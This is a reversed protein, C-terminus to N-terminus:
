ALSGTPRGCGGVHLPWPRRSLWLWAPYLLPFFIHPSSHIITVSGFKSALLGLLFYKNLPKDERERPCTENFTEYHKTLPKM